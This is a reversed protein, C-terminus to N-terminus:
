GLRQVTVELARAVRALETAMWGPKAALFCATAQQYFWIVQAPSGSFVPWIATGAEHLNRLLCRGNHLKDALLIRQVAPSAQQMQQLYGLKHNRWLQDPSRPPATCGQVLTAVAVGFQARIATLTAEGGQDEVADHLLAAIAEVEGGGDELVLAAVSFLHSVYPVGNVKRWQHRHLDTAYQLARDFRATLVFREM